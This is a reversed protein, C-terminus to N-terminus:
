LYDTILMHFVEVIKDAILKKQKNVISRGVIDMALNISSGVIGGQSLNSFKFKVDDYHIYVDLDKMILQDANPSKDDLLLFTHAYIKVGNVEISFPGNGQLPVM